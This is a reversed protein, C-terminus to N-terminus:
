LPSWFLFADLLAFASIASLLTILFDVLFDRLM